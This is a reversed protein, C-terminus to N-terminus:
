RAREAQHPYAVRIYLGLGLTRFDSVQLYLGGGDGYRGSKPKKKLADIKRTTLQNQKM